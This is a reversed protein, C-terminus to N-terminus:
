SWYLFNRFTRHGFSLRLSNIWKITSKNNLTGVYWKTKRLAFRSRLEVTKKVCNRYDYVNVKPSDKNVRVRQYIFSIGIRLYHNTCYMVRFSFCFLSCYLIEKLKNSIWWLMSKPWVGSLLLVNVERIGEQRSVIQPYYSLYLFTYYLTCAWSM